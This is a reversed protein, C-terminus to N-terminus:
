DRKCKPAIPVLSTMRAGAQTRKAMHRDHMLTLVIGIGFYVIGLVGLFRAFKGDETVQFLYLLAGIMVLGFGVFLWTTITALRM